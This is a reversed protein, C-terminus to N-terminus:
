KYSSTSYPSSWRWMLSGCSWGEGGKTTVSRSGVCISAGCQEVQALTCSIWFQAPKTFTPRRTAHYPCRGARSKVAKRDYPRPQSEFATTFNACTSIKCTFHNPLRNSPELDMDTSGHIWSWQMMVMSAFRSLDVCTLAQPTAGM